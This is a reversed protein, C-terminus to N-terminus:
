KIFHQCKVDTDLYLKYGKQLVDSCFTMDDYGSPNYRFKVKELVERHILLCGLGVRFVEMLQPKQVEKFTLRRKLKAQEFNHKQLEAYQDKYAEPHSKVKEIWESDAPMYALPAMVAKGNIEVLTFYVGSTVKKGRDILAQLADPPAVVDQELSFFYDFGTELFKERLINRSEMVSKVPDDYHPAKLADIGLKKLKQVYEDTKSNDVIMFYKEPYQLGVIGNLYRKICYEKGIFTPCGIFVKPVM